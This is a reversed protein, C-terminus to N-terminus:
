SYFYIIRIFIQNVYLLYTNYFYKKLTNQLNLNDLRSKKRTFKM